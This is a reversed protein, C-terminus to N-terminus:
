IYTILDCAIAVYKKLGESIESNDSFKELTEVNYEFNELWMANVIITAVEERTLNQNPYFMDGAEFPIPEFFQDAVNIYKYAWFNESVDDYEIQEYMNKLDLTEVIIKAFEAKTILKEPLFNGDPYGNIIKKEVMTNVASYAWHEEPLDFFTQANVKSVCFIITVLLVIICKKM